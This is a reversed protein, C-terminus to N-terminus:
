GSSGPRLVAAKQFFDAAASALVAEEKATPIPAAPVQKNTEGTLLDIVQQITPLESFTSPTLDLGFEENLRDALENMLFADIGYDM